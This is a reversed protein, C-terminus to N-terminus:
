HPLPGFDPRNLLVRGTKVALPGQYVIDLRQPFKIGFRAEADLYDLQRVKEGVDPSVTVAVFEQYMENFVDPIHYFFEILNSRRWEGLSTKLSFDFVVIPPFFSRVFIVSLVLRAFRDGPVVLLTQPLIDRIM